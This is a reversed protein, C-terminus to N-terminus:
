REVAEKMRAEELIERRKRKEEQIELMKPHVKYKIPPFMINVIIICIWSYVMWEDFNLCVWVELFLGLANM